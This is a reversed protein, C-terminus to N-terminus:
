ALLTSTVNSYMHSRGCLGCNHHKSSYFDIFFQASQNNGTNNLVIECVTLGTNVIEDVDYWYTSLLVSTETSFTSPENVGWNTWTVPTGTYWKFVKPSFIYQYCKCYWVFTHAPSLEYKYNLLIHM